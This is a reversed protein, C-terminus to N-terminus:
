GKQPIKNDAAAKVEELTTLAEAFTPHIGVCDDLHAKKFGCKMAVGLAQVVEGINAGLMQVGVVKEDQAEDVIVKVYGSDNHKKREPSTGWELPLAAAHYVKCSPFQKRADEESYGLIGFELPTFVTTAIDTYDMLKKSGAFLRRVLLRGTQIAVPTLEPKDEVVDGIAYIHPVSTQEAENCVLKGNSVQLGAAEANLWGACGTRGIALLVTDYIGYEKGDVFVRVQGSATKEFREPVMGRAFKIGHREMYEGILNACQQDFGRLLISRVMVTTDNGFGAIFGACELAIYSAGVVLTLRM